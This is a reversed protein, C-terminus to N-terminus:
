HSGRRGHKRQRFKTSRPPHVPGPDSVTAVDYVGPTTEQVTTGWPVLGADRLGCMDFLERAKM